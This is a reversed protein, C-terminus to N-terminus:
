LLIKVNENDEINKKFYNYEYNGNHWVNKTRNHFTYGILFIKKIKKNKLLSLLTQFGTTYYYKKNDYIYNEILILYKKDKREIINKIKNSKEKKVYVGNKIDLNINNTDETYSVIFDNDKEINNIGHFSSSNKRLILINTKGKCYDKIIPKFGNFRVIVSNSYDYNELFLKTKESINDNNAILFITKNDFIDTDFLNYINNDHTHANFKEKKIKFFLYFIILILFVIITLYM